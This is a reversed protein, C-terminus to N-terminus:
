QRNYISVDPFGCDRIEYDSKIAQVAAETYEPDSIILCDDVHTLIFVKRTRHIYLCKDVTSPKFGKVRLSRSLHKYFLRGSAGLGYLSKTLKMIQGPRAYGDPPHMYIPQPLDSCVYANKIDIARVDWSLRAALALMVRMSEPRMVPAYTAGVDDRHQTDGRACLRAKKRDPKQKYAWTSRLIQKNLALPEGISVWSYTRKDFLENNTKDGGIVSIRCENAPQM